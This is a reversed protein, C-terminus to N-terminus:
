ALLVVVGVDDGETGANDAHLHGLHDHVLPHVGLILAAAMLHAHIHQSLDLLGLAQLDHVLLTLSNEPRSQMAFRLTTGTKKTEPLCCLGGWGPRGKSNKCPFHSKCGSATSYMNTWGTKELQGITKGHTKCWGTCDLFLMFTINRPKM